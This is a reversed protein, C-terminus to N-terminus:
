RASVMFDYNEVLVSNPAAVNDARIAVALDYHAPPLNNGADDRIWWRTTWTLCHQSAVDLQHAPGHPPHQADLNWRTRGGGQSTPQDSVVLGIEGGTAFHASGRTAAVRCLSVVLDTPQGSVGHFPGAVQVCWGTAERGSTDACPTTASYRTQTRVPGASIAAAPPTAAAATATGVSLVAAPTSPGSTGATPTAGGSPAPVGTTRPAATPHPTQHTGSHSGDNTPQVVRLSDIGAAGSLLVVAAAVVATGGAATAITVARRRRRRHLRRMADDFGGPPPVGPPLGPPRTM